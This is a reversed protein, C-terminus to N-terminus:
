DKENEVDPLVALTLVMFILLAVLKVMQGLANVIRDLPETGMFFFTYVINIAIFVSVAGSLASPAYNILVKLKKM